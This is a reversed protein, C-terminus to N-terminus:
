KKYFQLTDIIPIEHEPELMDWIIKEYNKGDLMSFIIHKFPHNIIKLAIDKRTLHLINHLYEKSESEINNYKSKLESEINKVWKFLEDPIRDIFFNFNDKNRINEWINKKTVQTIFGHLKIYDKFKLKVRMGNQFRIVFGEKNPINMQSILKIDNLIDYKKSFPIKLDDMCINQIEEGNKTNIATIFTLCRKNGYDVVIRNQPYIIEFLYTYDRNLFKIDGSIIYDQLIKNAEKAQDSDFSGRTAIYTKDKYFYLIGLSGDLKEYVEFPENPLEQHEEINFFKPFPRAIINGDKDAILGRCQLTEDTWYKEWQAKQSYNYIFLEGDPHSNKIIYGEDILSNIKEIDLKKIIESVFM